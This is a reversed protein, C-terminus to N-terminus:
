SAVAAEDIMVQDRSEEQRDKGASVPSSPSVRVSTAWGVRSKVAAAPRKPKFLERAAARGAESAGRHEDRSSSVERAAEAADEQAQVEALVDRLPTRHDCGRRPTMAVGPSLLRTGDADCMRCERQAKVAAEVEAAERDKEARAQSRPSLGCERCHWRRHMECREGSPTDDAPPVEDGRSQPPNPPIELSNSETDGLKGGGLKGGGLFGTTAPLAGESPADVSQGAPVPNGTQPAVQPRGKSATTTRPRVSATKMGEPFREALIDRLEIPDDAFVWSWKWKGEGLHRRRRALYGATELEALVTRIADRGEKGAEAIRQSNTEWGEPLSLLYALVGRARYSLSVDQLAERKIPEVGRGKRVRITEVLQEDSM